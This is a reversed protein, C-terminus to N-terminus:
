RKLYVTNEITTSSNVSQSVVSLIVRVGPPRNGTPSLNSFTLESVVVNDNTLPALPGLGEKLRVAGGDLDFVLPNNPFNFKNVSLTSSSAGASPQNVKELGSLAWEIKRTVFNAEQEVEARSRTRRGSEVIRYFSEVAVSIVLSFLAIYIITDILTFGSRTKRFNEM